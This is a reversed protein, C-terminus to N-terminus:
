RNRGPPLAAAPAPTQAPAPEVTELDAILKELDQRLFPKNLVSHVGWRQAPRRWSDDGMESLVTVHCGSLTEKWDPPFVTAASRGRTTDLLLLDPKLEPFINSAAEAATTACVVTHGESELSRKILLRLNEDESVLVATVARM